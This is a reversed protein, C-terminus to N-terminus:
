LNCLKKSQIFKKLLFIMLESVRLFLSSFSFFSGSLFSNTLPYATSRLQEGRAMSLCSTKFRAITLQILLHPVATCTKLCNGNITQVRESMSQMSTHPMCLM